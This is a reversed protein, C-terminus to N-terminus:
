PTAAPPNIFPSLFVFDVGATFQVGSLDLTWDSRNWLELFEFASPDTHGAAEEAASAASPHYHIESVVLDGPRPFRLGALYVSESLSSWQGDLYARARLDVRGAPLPLADGGAARGAELRPHLLFDSSGLGNNLGHLALLNDGPRLADLHEEIPFPVFQLAEGDPHDGAASSNWAPAAPSNASAVKRGNLYAVFGDDFQVQLTLHTFAAPDDVWFPVRLYASTNRGNMAAGLDIGIRPLYDPNNDYGIGTLGAIWAGDDFEPQVWDLGASGDSPAWARSPVREEVLVARILGSPQVSGAAPSISGDPRRPDSGDLTYYVTGGSGSQFTVATGPEIEGGPPQFAPAELAPIWGRARLQPLLVERRGRIWRRTTEVASLWDSQDFPDPRQADGWRASEALIATEIEAARSELRALAREPSLSGGNFLHRQVAGAFRERYHRSAVLQEHLWHPNFQTEGSGTTFPFTLDSDGTDLSHESDHEFYLFGRPNNRNYIAYFNNPNPQTSRSGPGDRDGTYYTIIMYDIVNDVDLLREAAPDASGDPFLGQVRFYRSEDAFGLSAERWLRSHAARTGDTVSGFSKIM